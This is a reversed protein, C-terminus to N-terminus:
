KKTAARNKRGANRREEAIKKLREAEAYTGVVEMKEKLAAVTDEPFKNVDMVIRKLRLPNLQNLMSSKSKSSIAVGSIKLEDLQMGRLEYLHEIRTNSLDLSKLELPELVNRRYVGIINISFVTYPSGKLDLIGGEKTWTYKLGNKKAYNTYNLKDLVAAALPEYDVAKALSPRRRMHHYYVYFITMQQASNSEHILDALQRDTLQKKDVPKIKAYKESLTRLQGIRKSEGAKEFSDNAANFEQLVFHLIGKQEFLNQRKVTDVNEKLGTELLQIMSAANVFDRSRVTYSVAEGLNVGLQQRQQQEKKYLQFNAEANKRAAIAEAKEHAIEVLYGSIVFALIILFSILLFSVRSHRQLLLSTKTIWGAHEAKTPHGSLFQQIESRLELVSDYRDAPELALAKMVVAVLSKPVRRDPRRRRPSIVKGARTNQIVENASNGEVPLRYTLLNYLLAGLAYIDTKETKEGYAQTQEPAMFGPTGKLTGSLTMDNLIDGDLETSDEANQDPTGHVVRALGWDCVLVEGFEGVRINDPKIDLHLVGRSHAYAIAECIKLFINLLTEIPYDMRYAPDGDRLKRIITKLSDGPILEMSFFPEGEEDLGMNYVPMINPHALNATLRAERLFQELDQPSKNRVARAMAIRRDLRHDHVLLIKKEGGEAIEDIVRYRHKDQKLSNLIPTLSQVEEESMTLADTDYFSALTEFRESFDRELEKSDGDNM